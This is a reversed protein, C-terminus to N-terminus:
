QQALKWPNDDEVVLTSYFALKFLVRCLKCQLECIELSDRDATDAAIRALLEVFGDEIARTVCAGSRLSYCSLVPTVLAVLSAFPLLSILHTVYSLFM